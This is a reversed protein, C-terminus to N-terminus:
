PTTPGPSWRASLQVNLNWRDNGEIFYRNYQKSFVAGVGVDVDALFLLTQGGVSLTVDHCCRGDVKSGALAYYADNNHVPRQLFFGLRGWPAFLEPALSAICLLSARSVITALPQLEM